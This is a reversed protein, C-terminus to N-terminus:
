AKRAVHSQQDDITSALQKRAIEYLAVTLAVQVYLIPYYVVTFFFTSIIYAIIGGDLAHATLAYLKNGSRKAVNRTRYNQVFIYLIISIYSVLGPIGTEIAVLLYSNHTTLCWRLGKVGAPSRYRYWCYDIWNNYGVGTLKHEQAVRYGFKWLSFRELSTSDTGANHFEELMKPPLISYLIWGLLLISILTRIGGRSKMIFWIGMAALGLQAGRSASGVIVMLATLPMAYFFLKKIRGWNHKLALIFAVSLPFFIGMQIAYDAANGFWGPTGTLGWRAYSFGRGAYSLFGHQSMKFNVLLFLLLFIIFRRESNIVTIILFYVVVWNAMIDIKDLSSNPMFAFASSILIILFYLIFLVNGTNSVWRVSEDSKVTLLAFLLATQTWPLFDLAPYISQPRVYEFILYICLWWFVASEQKLGSWMPAVRVSYYDAIDIKKQKGSKGPLPM